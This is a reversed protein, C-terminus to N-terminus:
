NKTSLINNTNSFAEKVDALHRCIIYVGGSARKEAECQMQADSQVDRGSKVEFGYFRGFPGIIVINPFQAGNRM